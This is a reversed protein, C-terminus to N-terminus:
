WINRSRFHFLSWNLSSVVEQSSELLRKRNLGMLLQKSGLNWVCPCLEKRRLWLAFTGASQLQSINGCCKWDQDWRKTRGM